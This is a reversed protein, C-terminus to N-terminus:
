YYNDEKLVKISYQESKVIGGKNRFIYNLQKLEYDPDLSYYHEPIFQIVYISDELPTMKARELDSPKYIIWNSPLPNNEEEVNTSTEIYFETLKKLASNTELKLDYYLTFIDKKTFKVPFPRIVKAVETVPPAVLPIALDDTQADGAMNRFLCGIESMPKETDWYLQPVIDKRWLDEGIKECAASPDVSGWGGQNAADGLGEPNNWAWMYVPDTGTLDDRDSMTANFIISVNESYIATSPFWKVMVGDMVSPDFVSLSFGNTETGNNDSIKGEITEVTVGYYEDPTITVSWVNEDVVSAELSMNMDGGNAGSILYLPGEADELDTALVRLYITVEENGLFAAPATGVRPDGGALLDMSFFLLLFCVPIIINRKM